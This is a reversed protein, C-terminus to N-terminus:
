AFSKSPEFGAVLRQKTADTAKNIDLIDDNSRLRLQDGGLRFKLNRERERERQGDSKSDFQSNFQNTKFFQNDERNLSGGVRGWGHHENMWHTLEKNLVKALGSLHQGHEGGEDDDDDDDQRSAMRGVVQSQGTTVVNETSSITWKSGDIAVM